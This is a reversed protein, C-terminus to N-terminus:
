LKYWSSSECQLDDRIQMWSFNHVPPSVRQLPQVCCLSGLWHKFGSHEIQHGACLSNPRKMEIKRVIVAMEKMSQAKFM